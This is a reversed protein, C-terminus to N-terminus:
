RLSREQKESGAYYTILSYYIIFLSYYIIFLSCYIIFLSYYIIFLSYYIIFLPHSNLVEPFTRRVFFFKTKSEFNSRNAKSVSKTDFKLFMQSVQKCSLVTLNNVDINRRRRRRTIIIIIIIIIMMMVVLLMIKKKKEALKWHSKRRSFDMQEHFCNTESM